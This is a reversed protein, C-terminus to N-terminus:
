TRRRLGHGRIEANSRDPGVSPAPSEVFRATVAGICIAAAGSDHPESTSLGLQGRHKTVTLRHARRVTEAARAPSPYRQLGSKRTLHAGPELASRALALPPTWDHRAPRHCLVMAALLRTPEWRRAGANLRAPRPRAPRDAVLDPEPGHRAAIPEVPRQRPSGTTNTAFCTLRRRDADAIRLQTGLHPREKSVVLPMGPPWGKLVRSRPAGRATACTATRNSRLHGPRRRSSLSQKTSADTIVM